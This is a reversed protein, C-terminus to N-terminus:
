QRRYDTIPGAEADPVGFWGSKSPGVQTHAKFYRQLLAIILLKRQVGVEPARGLDSARRACDIALTPSRSTQRM